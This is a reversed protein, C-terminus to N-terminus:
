IIMYTGKKDNPITQPLKFKTQPLSEDKWIHLWFHLFDRNKDETGFLM